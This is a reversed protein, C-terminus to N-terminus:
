RAGGKIAARYAWPPVPQEEQWLGRRQRRASQEVALTLPDATCSSLLDLTAGLPTGRCRRYTWALGQRVLSLGVDQTGLTVNGLTRGYRDFGSSSVRVQRGEVMGSLTKQSVDGFPQAREPADIGELRIRVREGSREIELTDGDIVRSVRGSFEEASAPTYAAVTVVAALIAPHLKDLVSGIATRM